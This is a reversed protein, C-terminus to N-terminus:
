ADTEDTGFPVHLLRAARRDGSRIRAFAVVLFGLLCVIILDWYYGPLVEIRNEIIVDVTFKQFRHFSDRDLEVNPSIRVISVPRHAQSISLSALAAIAM